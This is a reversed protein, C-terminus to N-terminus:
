LKKQNLVEFFGREQLKRHVVCHNLFDTHGITHYTMEFLDMIRDNELLNLLNSRYPFCRKNGLIAQRAEEKLGAYFRADPTLYSTILESVSIAVSNNTHHFKM